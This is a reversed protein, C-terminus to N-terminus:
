DKNQQFESMLPTPTNSPLVRALVIPAGQEDTLPLLPEIRRPGHWQRWENDDLICYVPEAHSPLQEPAALRRAPPGGTVSSRLRGFYFLIGEDKLRFLYL